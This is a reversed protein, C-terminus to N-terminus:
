DCVVRKAEIDITVMLTDPNSGGSAEREWRWNGSEYKNHGDLVGLVLSTLRPKILM